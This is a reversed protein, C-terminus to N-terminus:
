PSLEGNNCHRVCDQLVAQWKDQEAETMMCFYYHRASPHWLILPFQTPCKLIPASGSKPTTGTSVAGASRSGETAERPWLIALLQGRARGRWSWLPSAQGPIVLTLSSAAERLSWLKALLLGAEGLGGAGIRQTLLADVERPDPELSQAPPVLLM